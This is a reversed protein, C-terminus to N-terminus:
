PYIAGGARGTGGLCGDAMGFVEKETSVIVRYVAMGIKMITLLHKTRVRLTPINQRGSQIKININKSRIWM